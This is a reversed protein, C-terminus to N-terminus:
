AMLNHMKEPGISLRYPELEPPLQAESSIFVRGHTKLIELLKIKNELSLGKQPIDHSAQWSVFRLIFFKEDGLGIENLIGKDPTFRKPHLYALEHYGAYRIHKRGLQGMYCDPTCIVSAVPYTIANSLTASETDYFVVSPKGIVKGVHAISVGAIGTLVDPKFKCAIRYLRIDREVLEKFLGALGSAQQSICTNEIGYKDLLELTMEKDRSTVVVEHEKQWELIAKRFFHVHAPHMVDVLIKM